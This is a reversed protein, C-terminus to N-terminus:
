RERPPADSEKPDGDEDVVTDLENGLVDDSAGAPEPALQRPTHGPAPAHGVEAAAAGASLPRVRRLPLAPANGDKDQGFYVVTHPYPLEIGAANFHKKVLRNYGRQVAWQMGPSTKILIRITVGRESLSTVGAVTMDELLEPALVEDQQLEAYAAKLHEIAEDVNERHAITYEGVHYSFDRMHNVVTDVSSFPILHYGGDLTRIGVSRITLKEVTGFVGAAEVVDNQNMGNELQIFIGTIIDQVLKQAGFGIALGVVGAGAILPGIDIGIQSLLVLATMTVIVVLAANRFLSLLTKERASPGGPGAAMNLRHEIISAIVTWALVAIFLIIGLRVIMFIAASGSASMLWASLDFANWADLVVLAVGLLILMRLGKLAAPVYANLRAELMPLRGRWHDSLRIRRALASTLIASLLLGLGVAIVTQATARAMFPLAQDPALQSAGLLITFYAIALVHWVRALMRLLTGFFASATDARRNLRDRLLQRNTWIVRLAYIYVGLMIFLGLMQGVAPSFMAKVLPVAILIGYGTLTVLRALWSNWFVAVEDSMALLRLHPYRTAFVVRVLAKAIEVALFTNVFLAELRGITGTDGAIFLGAGYGATAALVIVAIDILLAGVIAITSRYLSQPTLSPRPAGPPIERPAPATNRHALWRDLRAYAQSAILRFLAWALLTAAVVIAFDILIGRWVEVTMGRLGEGTGLSRFTAAAEGLNQSLDAFFHQVGDALQRSVGPTADVAAAEVGTAPTKPDAASQAAESQQRLQQILANRSAENELLDALQAPSAAQNAAPEPAPAQAFAPSLSLLWLLLGMALLTSPGLLWGPALSRPALTPAHRANM